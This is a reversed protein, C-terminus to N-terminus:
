MDMADGLADRVGEETEPGTLTQHGFESHVTHFPAGQLSSQNRALRVPIFRAPCSAASFESGTSKISDLHNVSCLIEFARQSPCSRFPCPRTMGCAMAVGAGASACLVVM